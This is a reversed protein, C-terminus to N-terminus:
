NNLHLPRPAFARPAPQRDHPRETATDFRGVLLIQAELVKQIVESSAVCHRITHLDWHATLRVQTAHAGRDSPLDATRGRAYGRAMCDVALVGFASGREM